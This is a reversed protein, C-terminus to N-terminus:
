FARVEDLHSKLARLEEQLALLRSNDSFSIRLTPQALQCLIRGACAKVNHFCAKGAPEQHRLVPGM